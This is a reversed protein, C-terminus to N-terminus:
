SERKKKFFLKKIIWGIILVCVIVDSFMLITGVGLITISFIVALLLALLTFILITLLIM